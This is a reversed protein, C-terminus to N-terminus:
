NKPVKQWKSRTREIARAFEDFPLTVGPGISIHQNCGPVADYGVALEPGIDALEIRWVATKLNLGGWELPLAFRPLSGIMRSCSLGNKEGPRFAPRHVFGVLDPDIDKGIRVGLTTATVGLRPMGDEEEIMARYIGDGPDGDMVAREEMAM